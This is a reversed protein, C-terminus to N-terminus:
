VIRERPRPRKVFHKDRYTGFHHAGIDTGAPIGIVVGLFAVPEMQLPLRTPRRPAETAPSYAQSGGSYRGGPPMACSGVLLAVALVIRM